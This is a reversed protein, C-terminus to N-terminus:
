GRVMDVVRTCLRDVLDKEHSIVVIGIKHEKAYSLVLKWIQAQTIADLMTTMEDAILFRTRENLVRLVCFRQLEGGSLEGPWRDLWDEKIGAAKLMEASPMDTGALAKRMKWKPDVAKEPHQFILQVPNYERGVPVAAYRSGAREELVVEGREPKLFGALIKALTSKGHGSPAVLGVVEDQEVTLDVGQLIKRGGAYGFTIDSARLRM